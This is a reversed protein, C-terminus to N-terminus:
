NRGQLVLYAVLHTALDTYLKKRWAGVSREVWLDILRAQCPPLDCWHHVVAFHMYRAHTLCLLTVGPPAVLRKEPKPKSCPNAIRYAASIFPFKSPRSGELNLNLHLGWNFGGKRSNMLTFSSAFNFASLIQNFNHSLIKSSPQMTAFCDLTFIYTSHELIGSTFTCIAVSTTKWSFCLQWRVLAFLLLCIYKKIEKCINNKALFPNKKWESICFISFLKCKLLICSSM